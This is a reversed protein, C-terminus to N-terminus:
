SDGALMTFRTALDQWVEHRCKGTGTGLADCLVDIMTCLNQITQAATPQDKTCEDILDQVPVFGDEDDCADFRDAAEACATVLAIADAVSKAFPDLDNM